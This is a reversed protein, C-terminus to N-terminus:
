KGAGRVHLRNNVGLIGDVHSLATAEKKERQSDVTGELVAIGEDVDVEIHNNKLDPAKELKTRIQQEQQDDLDTSEDEAIARPSAAALMLGAAAISLAFQVRRM